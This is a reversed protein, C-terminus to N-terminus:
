AECFAELNEFHTSLVSYQTSLLRSWVGFFLINSFKKGIETQWIRLYNNLVNILFLSSVTKSFILILPVKISIKVKEVTTYVKELEPGTYENSLTCYENSLKSFVGSGSACNVSIFMM